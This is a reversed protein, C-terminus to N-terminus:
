KEKKESCNMAFIKYFNIQWPWNKYYHHIQLIQSCLQNFSTWFKIIIAIFSNINFKWSVNRSFFSPIYTICYNKLANMWKEM